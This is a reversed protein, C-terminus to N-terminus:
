FSPRIRLCLLEDDAAAAGDFMSAGVDLVYSRAAVTGDVITLASAIDSPRACNSATDDALKTCAMEVDSAQRVKVGLGVYRSAVISLHDAADNGDTCGVATVATVTVFVTNTYQLTETISSVTETRNIGFQDKGTITASTCVLAGGDTGNDDIVVGLRTPYPVNHIVSSAFTIASTAGTDVTQAAVLGSSGLDATEAVDWANYFYCKEVAKLAFEMNRSGTLAWATVPIGVLLSLLGLALLNNKIFKMM